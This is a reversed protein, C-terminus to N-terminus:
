VAHMNGIEEFPCNATNQRASSEVLWGAERILHLVSTRPLTPFSSGDCRSYAPALFIAGNCVCFLYSYM